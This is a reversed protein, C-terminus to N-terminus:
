FDWGVDSELVTELCNTFTIPSNQYKATLAQIFSFSQLFYLTSNITNQWQM